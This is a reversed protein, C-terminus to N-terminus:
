LWQYNRSIWNVLEQTTGFRDASGLVVTIVDHGGVRALGVFCQGAAQTYGTKIGYFQGTALLKNTSPGTLVRGATSSFTASTQTITSKIFPNALALQSIRALAAATAYNGDDQLGSPNTFRTGSIGWASMKLNMQAAFKTITGSDYLALADAADNASIVLAAGVLDGLQYREGPQLGVLEADSPYAPLQGITVTEDPRHRSLIVLATILKTVSAIPRQQDPAQAY